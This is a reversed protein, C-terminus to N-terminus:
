EVKAELLKLIIKKFKRLEQIYAEGVNNTINVKPDAVDIIMYQKKPINVKEVNLNRYTEDDQEIKIGKSFDDIAHVFEKLYLEYTHKTFNESLGYYLLLSIVYDTIQELNNIDRYYTLLQITNKFLNFESSALNIFSVRLDDINIFHNTQYNLTDKFRILINLTYNKLIVKISNSSSDLSIQNNKDLNHEFVLYNWVENIAAQNMLPFSNLVPTELVLMLDLNKCGSYITSTALNGAKKLSNVKMYHLKSKLDNELSYIFNNIEEKDLKTLELDTVVKRFDKETM